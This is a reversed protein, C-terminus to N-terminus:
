MLPFGLDQHGGARTYMFAHGNAGTYFVFDKYSGNSQQVPLVTPASLMSGGLNVCTTSKESAALQFIIKNAVNAKMPFYPFRATGALSNQRGIGPDGDASACTGFEGWGTHTRDPFVSERMLKGQTGVAFMLLETLVGSSRKVAVASNSNSRVDYTTPQWYADVVNEDNFLAHHNLRLIGSAERVHGVEIAGVDTSVRSSPGDDFVRLTEAAYEGPNEDWNWLLSWHRSVDGNAGAAHAFVVYKDGSAAASVFQNFSGMNSRKARVDAGVDYWSAANSPHSADPWWREWLKGTTSVYFASVQTGPGYTVAAPPSMADTDITEWGGTWSSSSLSYVRRVFENLAGRAFVWLHSGVKIVSIPHQMLRSDVTVADQATSLPEEPGAAGASPDSDLDSAASCAGVGLAFAMLGVRRLSARSVPNTQWAWGLFDHHM